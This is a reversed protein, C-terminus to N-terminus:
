LMSKIFTKVTDDMQLVNHKRFIKLVLAMDRLTTDIDQSILGPVEIREQEAPIAIEMGKEKRVQNIIGNMIAAQAEDHINSM